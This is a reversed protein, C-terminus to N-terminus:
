CDGSLSTVSVDFPVCHWGLFGTGRVRKQFVVIVVIICHVKAIGFMSFIYKLLSFGSKCPPWLTPSFFERLKGPKELAM